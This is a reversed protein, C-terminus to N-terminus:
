VPAGFLEGVSRGTHIRSIAEGILQVDYHRLAIRRRSAERVAAFAEPLIDDLTEGPKKGNGDQGLGVGLREKFETTLAALEGDTLDQIDPELANIQAVLPRLKEAERAHQRNSFTKFINLM